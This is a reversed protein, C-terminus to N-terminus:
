PNCNALANVGTGGDRRDAGNGGDLNDDGAGGDVIDDGDNGNVQDDGSCTATSESTSSEIQSLQIAPAAPM